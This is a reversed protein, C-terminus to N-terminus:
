MECGPRSFEVLLRMDLVGGLLRGASDLRCNFNSLAGQGVRLQRFSPLDNGRANILEMQLGIIAPHGAGGSLEGPRGM